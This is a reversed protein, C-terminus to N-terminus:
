KANCYIHEMLGVFKQRTLPKPCFGAFSSKEFLKAREERDTTSSVVFVSYRNRVPQPLKSFEDLFQFGDMNPMHLDSLIIGPDSMDDESLGDTTGLYHLADEASYFTQIRDSTVIRNVVRKAMAMTFPDDDILIVKPPKTIM